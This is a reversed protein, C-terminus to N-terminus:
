PLTNRTFLFYYSFGMAMFFTVGKENLDFAKAEAVILFIVGGILDSDKGWQVMGVDHPEM